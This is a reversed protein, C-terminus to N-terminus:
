EGELPAFLNDDGVFNYHILQENCLIFTIDELGSLLVGESVRDVWFNCTNDAGDNEDGTLTHFEWLEAVLVHWYMGKFIPNM